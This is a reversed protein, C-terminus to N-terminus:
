PQFGGQQLRLLAQTVTPMHFLVRRGVKIHPLKGAKRWAYLTRRSIPIKSLLVREDIFDKEVGAAAQNEHTRNM